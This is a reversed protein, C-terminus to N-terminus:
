LIEVYLETVSDYEITLIQGVGSNIIDFSIDDTIVGDVLPTPAIDSNTTSASFTVTGYVSARVYVSLKSDPAIFDVSGTGSVNDIIMAM